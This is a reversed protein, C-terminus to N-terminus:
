LLLERFLDCAKLNKQEETTGVDVETLNDEYIKM